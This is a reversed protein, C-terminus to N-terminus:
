FFSLPKGSQPCEYKQRRGTVGCATFGYLSSGSCLECEGVPICETRLFIISDVDGDDDDDEEEIINLSSEEFDTDDDKSESLSLMREYRLSERSAKTMGQQRAVDRNEGSALGLLAIIYFSYLPIFFM